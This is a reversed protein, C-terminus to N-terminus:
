MSGDPGVIVYTLKGGIVFFPGKGVLSEILTNTLRANSSTLVVGLQMSGSPGGGPPVFNEWDLEYEPQDFLFGKGLYSALAPPVVGPGADAPWNGTEYWASYAALRVSQLDGVAQASLARHKLDIYKLVAIGALVGIVIMVVLLEVVTFGRRGGKM